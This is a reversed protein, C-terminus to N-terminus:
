RPISNHRPWKVRLGAHTVPLNTFKARALRSLCGAPGPLSKSKGLDLHLHGPETGLDGVATSQFMAQLCHIRCDRIM